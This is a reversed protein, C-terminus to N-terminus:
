VLLFLPCVHRHQLSAILAEIVGPPLHIFVAYAWLVEFTEGAVCALTGDGCHLTFGYHEWDEQWALEQLAVLAHISLDIGTYHQYRWRPCWCAPWGARGVASTWCGCRHVDPRAGAFLRTAATGRGGLGRGGGSGPWGGAGAFRYAPCVRRPLRIASVPSDSRAPIKAHGADAAEALTVPPLSPIYMNLSEERSKHRHHCPVSYASASVDAPWQTDSLARLLGVGERNM